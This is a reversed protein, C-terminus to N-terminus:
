LDGLSGLAESSSSVSVPVSRAQGFSVEDFMVSTPTLVVKKLKTINQLTTSRIM